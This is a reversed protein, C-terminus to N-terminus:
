ERYVFENSNLLAHCLDVLAAGHLRPIGGGVGTALAISEGKESREELIRRQSELFGLAMSCEMESPKRGYAHKWAVEVQRVGDGGAEAVVRGAFSQAWDHTLRSNLLTLAQVPSTTVNRRSCTEHTDPMDFSEFLPYRTNRRVFVYVSRRDVAGPDVSVKWGGRTEMGPPLEPFISPGGRAENLKGAVFLGSDRIVEGEVRARPYRGLWRNPLDNGALETGGEGTLESARQYVESRLVLRHLAKLSWGGRVFEGALWDLLEPHTPAEGKMGFDGPTGVLGKGFHQQWVRNVMVRAVWPNVPDTLWRALSARRGSSMRVPVEPLDSGERRRTTTDLSVPVIEPDPLGLVSFFGPRVEEKPSNWNGRALVHTAPPASAVDTMAAARPLKGPHLPAFADLRKKLELWRAKEEKKMRGGCASSPALYQHSEPDLYLKAKAVMQHEFPTREVASKKLAVQINDPYKEIYDQLIAERHPAELRELEERVGQTQREWDLLREQYRKVEDASALVLNDNAASNAFFAQFRYYDAQSIPDYKHDHCRACALTMGCFVSAVTDTIDNLIEQRRQMLNRANSEDPYHRNFGTAILALSDGPWLEDGAIQEQVFRDFPKDTNFADVVYDRYRWANPRTEDAKFGESEAYRALDLWHRAMREGYRPSALLREVVRGWADATGDREFADVEAPTPPLGTLDLTVRRLLTAKSARGARTVANKELAEQVFADVGTSVKARDRVAPMVVPRVPKLSWLGANGGSEHAKSTPVEGLAAVAAATFVAAVSTVKWLASSGLDRWGLGKQGDSPGAISRFHKSPKM